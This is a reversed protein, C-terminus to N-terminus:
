KIFVYIGIALSAISIIISLIALYIGGEEHRIIQILAVAGLIIGIAILIVGATIKLVVVLSLVSALFAMIALPNFRTTQPAKTNQPM